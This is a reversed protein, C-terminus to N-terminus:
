LVSCKWEELFTEHGERKMGWCRGAGVVMWAVVSRVEIGM